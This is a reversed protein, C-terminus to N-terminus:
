TKKKISRKKNQNIKDSNEDAPESSETAEATPEKEETETSNVEAPAVEAPETSQAEAPESPAAEAPEAPAVEAPETSQAEAPEAPAAEVAEKSPKAKRPKKVAEPGKKAIKILSLATESPLAGMGIWYDVRDINLKIEDEPKNAKPAYTGLIEVFRGDRPSRSDAAVMRYYPSHRAGHRQLRIKLAM